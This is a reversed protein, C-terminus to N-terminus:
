KQLETWRPLFLATRPDKWMWLPHQGFESEILTVLEQRYPDAEPQEWWREPLPTVSDWSLGFTRLLRDHFDVIEVHEWSGEPNNDKQPPMMKEPPGLYAELLNLACAVASTGSRHMGLVGVATQRPGSM